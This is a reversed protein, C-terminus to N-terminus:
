VFVGLDGLGLVELVGLCDFGFWGFFFGFDFTLFLLNWSFRGGFVLEGSVGIEGFM